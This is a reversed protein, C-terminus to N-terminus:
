RCGEACGALGGSGALARRAGVRRGHWGCGSGWRRGGRRVRSRRRVLAPRRVAARLGRVLVRVALGWPGVRCPPTPLAAQSASRPGTDSPATSTVLRGAAPSQWRPARGRSRRLMARSRRATLLAGDPARAARASPGVKVARRCAGVDHRTTAPGLGRARSWAFRAFALSAVEVVAGFARIRVRPGRRSVRVAGVLGWM